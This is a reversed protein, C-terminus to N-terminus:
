SNKGMKDNVLWFDRNLFIEKKQTFFTERLLCVTNNKSEIQIKM